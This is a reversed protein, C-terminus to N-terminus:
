PCGANYAMLFASVDFFNFLGDGDFDAIPDGVTYAALFASVDFFNLLGDDNLDAPCDGGLDDLYEVPMNNLMENEEFSLEGVEPDLTSEGTAIAGFDFNRNGRVKYHLNAWARVLM